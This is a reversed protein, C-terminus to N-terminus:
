MMITTLITKIGGINNVKGNRCPEDKNLGIPDTCYATQLFSSVVTSVPGVPPIHHLFSVVEGAGYHPISTQIPCHNGSSLTSDHGTSSGFTGSILGYGYWKGSSDTLNVIHNSYHPVVNPPLANEQVFAKLNPPLSNELVVINPETSLRDNQKLVTWKGFGDDVLGKVYGAKYLEAYNSHAYFDEVAHLILGFDSIAKGLSLSNPNLDNILSDYNENIRTITGDFNCNDYHAENDWIGLSKDPTTSTGALEHVVAGKLFGLATSTIEQHISPGFLPVGSTFGKVNLPILGLLMCLLFLFLFVRIKYLM